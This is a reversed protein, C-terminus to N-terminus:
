QINFYHSQQETILYDVAIDYKDIYTSLDDIVFESYMLGVKICNVEAFFRDYYGGGYGIRYGKKDYIIAPTICLAKASIDKIINCKNIDPELIGKSNEVLFNLSVVEYFKMEKKSTIVPAYVKKNNKLAYKIIKKTGVELETSIYTLIISSKEFVESNIFNQYILEDKKSKNNIVKRLDKYIKRIENKNKYKKM